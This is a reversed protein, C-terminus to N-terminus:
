QAFFHAPPRGLENVARFLIGIEPYQRETAERNAETMFASSNYGDSSGNHKRWGHGQGALTVNEQKYFVCDSAAM